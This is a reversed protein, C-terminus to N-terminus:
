MKLMTIPAIWRFSAAAGPVLRGEADDRLLGEYLDGLGEREASYWDLEDFAKVMKVVDDQPGELAAIVMKLPLNNGANHGIPIYFGEGEQIALSIGVIDARMEETSTTETDFSIVKAKNM